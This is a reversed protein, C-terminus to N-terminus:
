SPSTCIECIQLRKMFCGESTSETPSTTFTTTRSASAFRPRILRLMFCAFFYFIYQAAWVPPVTCKIPDFLPRASRTDFRGGLTPPTAVLAACGKKDLFDWISKRSLYLLGGMPSDRQKDDM